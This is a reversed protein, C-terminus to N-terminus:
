GRIKSQSILVVDLLWRKMEEDTMRRLFEAEIREIIVGQSKLYKDRLTCFRKKREQKHYAGDVEINIIL